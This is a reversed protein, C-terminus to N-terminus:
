FDILSERPDAAQLLMVGRGDSPLCKRIYKKSPRQDIQDHLVPSGQLHFYSAPM